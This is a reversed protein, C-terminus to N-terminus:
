PLADPTRSWQMHTVQNTPAPSGQKAVHLTSYVKEHVNYIYICMYTYLYICVVSCVHVCHLGSTLNGKHTIM